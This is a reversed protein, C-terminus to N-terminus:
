RGRGSKRLNGSWAIALMIRSTVDVATIGLAKALSPIYIATAM